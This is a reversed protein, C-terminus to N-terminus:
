RSFALVRELGQSLFYDLVGFYAAMGVSLGIVLLAHNVVQTRSPWVVKALEDRVELLYRAAINDKWSM